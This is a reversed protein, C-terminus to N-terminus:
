ARRSARGRTCNTHGISCSMSASGAARLLQVKHEAGRVLALDRRATRLAKAYLQPVEYTDAFTLLQLANSANVQGCLESEVTKLLPTVQFYAAAQVLELVYAYPNALQFKQMKERARDADIGFSGSAARTGESALEGLLDDLQGM